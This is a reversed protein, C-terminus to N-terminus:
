CPSCQVYRHTWSLNEEESSSSFFDVREMRSLRPRWRQSTRPVLSEPDPQTPGEAATTEAPGCGDEALVPEGGPAEPEGPDEGGPTEPEGPDEGGQSEPEDLDEGEVPERGPEAGTEEEDATEGDSESAAAEESTRQAELSSCDLGSERSAKQM